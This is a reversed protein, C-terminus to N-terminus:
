PRDDSEVTNECDPVLFSGEERGKKQLPSRHISGQVRFGTAHSPIEVWMTYTHLTYANFSLSFIGLFPHYDEFWSASVDIIQLGQPLSFVSAYKKHEPHAICKSM